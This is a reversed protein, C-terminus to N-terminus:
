EMRALKDTQRLTYQFLIAFRYMRHRLDCVGGVSEERVNAWRRFSSGESNRIKLCECISMLTIKLVNHLKEVLDSLFLPLYLCFNM